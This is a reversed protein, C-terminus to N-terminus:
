MAWKLVDGTEDNDLTEADTYFEGTFMCRVNVRFM